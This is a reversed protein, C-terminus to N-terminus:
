DLKMLYDVVLKLDKEFEVKEARIMNRYPTFESATSEYNNLVNKIIKIVDAQKCQDQDISAWTPLPYDKKYAAAGKKGTIVCTGCAAAERPLRDKGPHFGFDIYLMSEHMLSNLQQNTYGQLPIWNLEPALKILQSTYDYGKKPNYLVNPKRNNFSLREIGIRYDDNIYDSLKLLSSREIDHRLAYDKAYECQYLHVTAEKISRFAKKKTQLLSAKFSQLLGQKERKYTPDCQIRFFDVSLWWFLTTARTFKQVFFPRTEPIVVFSNTSDPIDKANIFTSVYRKYQEPIKPEGKSRSCDYAITADVNIKNLEYVLQHLLEPGGTTANAPAIVYFM